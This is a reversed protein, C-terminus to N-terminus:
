EANSVLYELTVIKPIILSIIFGFIYLITGLVFSELLIKKNNM